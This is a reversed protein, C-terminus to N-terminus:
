RRRSLLRRAPAGRNLYHPRGHPRPRRAPWAHDLRRRHAHRPQPPQRAIADGDSEVTAVHSKALTLVARGTGHHQHDVAVALVELWIGELDVRVIDQWAFVGVLGGADDEVLHLNRRQFTAYPIDNLWAVADHNIWHEVDDEYTGTSCRFAALRQADPGPAFPRHIM